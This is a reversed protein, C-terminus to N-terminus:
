PFTYLQGLAQAPRTVVLGDGFKRFRRDPFDSELKCRALVEPPEHATSLTTVDARSMRHVQRPQIAASVDIRGISIATNLSRERADGRQIGRLGVVDTAHIPDELKSSTM